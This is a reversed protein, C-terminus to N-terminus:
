KAAINSSFYSRAQKNIQIKRIQQNLPKEIFSYVICGVIISIFILLLGIAYKTIPLFSISSLIKSIVSMSIFNTLYISFSANGLYKGFRPINIEKQLDISSLGLILFVSSMSTTIQLSINVFEYQTNLWSLPFGIIGLVVFVISLYYNIKMKTVVYACTIGSLFILNNFNFLYNIFYNSTTLLNMSFVFSTVTWIFLILRSIIREKLFILSFVLYFLVTHVLSWAVGIIPENESPLLLLSSIITNIDRENGEGFSPIVFYIPLICVTLTWYIPYIRKLRNFLFDKIIKQNGFEKHYLYYIMFGSLAFFYYVGGSKKVASLNLFNYDFYAKMFDEAHFLIVIFPVLARSLQILNLHKRM